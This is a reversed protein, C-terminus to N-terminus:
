QKLVIKSNYIVYSDSEEKLQKRLNVWIWQKLGNVLTIYETYEYHLVRKVISIKLCDDIFYWGMM